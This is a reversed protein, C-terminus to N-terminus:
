PAPERALARGCEGILAPGRYILGTYLQVLAAGAAIGPLLRACEAADLPTVAALPARASVAPGSSSGTPHLPQEMVGYDRIRIARILTPSM